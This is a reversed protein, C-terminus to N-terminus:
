RSLSYTQKADRLGRAIRVLQTELAPGALLKRPWPAGPIPEVWAVVDLGAFGGNLEFDVGRDVLILRPRRSAKLVMKSGGSPRSVVRHGWVFQLPAHGGRARLPDMLDEFFPPLLLTHPRVAADVGAQRLLSIALDGSPGLQGQWTLSIDREASLRFFRSGGEVAGALMLLPVDCLRLQQLGAQEAGGPDLTFRGQSHLHGERQSEQIWQEVMRAPDVNMGESYLGPPQARLTMQGM